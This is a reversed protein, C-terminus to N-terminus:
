FSGSALDERAMRKITQWVIVGADQDKEIIDQLDGWSLDEARRQLIFELSLGDTAKEHIKEPTLDDRYPDDTSLQLLLKKYYNVRSPYKEGIAKGIARAEGREKLSLKSVDPLNEGLQMSRFVAREPEDQEYPSSMETEEPTTLAESMMLGGFRIII